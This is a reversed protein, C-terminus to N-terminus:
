KLFDNSVYVERYHTGTNYRIRSRFMGAEVVKASTGSPLITVQGKQMMLLLGESDDRVSIDTMEKYLEKSPATLSEQKVTVEQGNKFSSACSCSYLAIIIMLSRTIKQM